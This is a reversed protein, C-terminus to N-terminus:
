RRQLLDHAAPLSVIVGGEQEAHGGSSPDQGFVDRVKTKVKKEKFMSQAFKTAEGIAPAAEPAGFSSVGIQAGAGVIGM